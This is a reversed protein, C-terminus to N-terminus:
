KGGLLLDVQRNIFCRIEDSTQLSIGSYMSFDKRRYLIIQLISVLEFSILKCQSENVEVGIAEKVYPLIMMPLEIPAEFILYPVSLRTIREFQLTVESVRYLLRKLREKASGELGDMTRKTFEDAIIEDTAAKLLKEKSQFYYNMMALNVEAKTAIQRATIKEPNKMTLLLEKTADIMRERTEGNAM